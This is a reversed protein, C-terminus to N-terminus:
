RGGAPVELDCRWISSDAATLGVMWVRLYSGGLVKLPFIRGISDTHSIADFTWIGYDARNENGDQVFTSSSDANMLPIKTTDRSVEFRARGLSLSGSETRRYGRVLLNFKNPATEFLMQNAKQSDQATVNQNYGIWIWRSSISDVGNTISDASFIHQWVVPTHESGVLASVNNSNRLPNTERQETQGFATGAILLAILLSKM